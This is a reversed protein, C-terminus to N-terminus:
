ANNAAQAMESLIKGLQIVKAYPNKDFSQNLAQIIQDAPYVRKPVVIVLGKNNTSELDVFDDRNVTIIYQIEHTAAYEYLVADSSGRAISTYDGVFTLSWGLADFATRYEPDKFYLVCEDVLFNKM